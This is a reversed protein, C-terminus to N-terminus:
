SRAIRSVAPGRRLPIEQQVFGLLRMELADDIRHRELARALRVRRAVAGDGRAVVPLEELESAARVLIRDSGEDPTQSRAVGASARAPAGPVGETWSAPRMAVAPATNADHRLM